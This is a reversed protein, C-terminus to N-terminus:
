SKGYSILPRFVKQNKLDEIAENIQDLTYSKSLLIELPLDGQLYFEALRPIDKDPASSGGWSGQISKGSIM